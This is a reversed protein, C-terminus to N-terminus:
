KPAHFGGAFESVYAYFGAAIDKMRYSVQQKAIGAHELLLRANQQLIAAGGNEWSSFPELELVAGTYQVDDAKGAVALVLVLLWM